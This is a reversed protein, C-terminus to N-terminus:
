KCNGVTRNYRDRGSSVEASQHQSSSAAQILGGWSTASVSSPQYRITGGGLEFDGLPIGSRLAGNSRQFRVFNKGVSPSHLRRIELDHRGLEPSPARTTLLASHQDRQIELLSGRRMAGAGVGTAPLRWQIKGALYDVDLQM